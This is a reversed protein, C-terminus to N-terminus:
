VSESPKMLPRDKQELLVRAENEFRYKVSKIPMANILTEKDPTIGKMWDTWSDGCHMLQKAETVLMVEDIEKIIQQEAPTPVTLELAGYIARMVDEEVWKFKPFHPKFPSPVDSIYAEAADHMLCLLQMRSNYGKRKAFDAANLSHQAVSFFFSCQGNFRCINSLGHAIDQINVDESRPAFPAFKRGTYTEIWSNKM